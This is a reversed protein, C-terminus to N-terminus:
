GRRPPAPSPSPEIPLTPDAPPTEKRKRKLADLASDAGEGTSPPPAPKEEGPTKNNDRPMLTAPTLRVRAPSGQRMLQLAVCM